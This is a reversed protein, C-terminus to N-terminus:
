AMQQSLLIAMILGALAAIIGVGGCSLGAIALGRGSMGQHRRIQRLGTIGLAVGAAGLLVALACFAGSVIAGWGGEAGWIGFCWVISAVLLSGIGAGFSGISVGSTM